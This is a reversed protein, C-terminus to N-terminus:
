FVKVFDVILRAFSSSTYQIRPSVQSFGCGWTERVPQPLGKLLMRRLVCPGGSICSFSFCRQHYFIFSSFYKGYYAKFSGHTIFVGRRFFGGEGDNSPFPRDVFMFRGPGAYPHADIFSTKGSGSGKLM